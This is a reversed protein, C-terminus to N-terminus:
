WQVIKLELYHSSPQLSTALINWWHREHGANFINKNFHIRLITGKSLKMAFRENSISCPRKMSSKSPFLLYVYKYFNLRVHLSIFAWSMHLNKYGMKWLYHFQCHLLVSNKERTVSWHVLHKSLPKEWGKM